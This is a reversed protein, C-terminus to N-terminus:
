CCAEDPESAGHIRGRKGGRTIVDKLRAAGYLPSVPARGPITRDPGHESRIIGVPEEVGGDGGPRLELKLEDLNRRISRYGPFVAGIVGVGDGGAAGSEDRDVPLISSLFLFRVAPACSPKSHFRLFAAGRFVGVPM